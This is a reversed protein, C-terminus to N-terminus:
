ADGSRAKASARLLVSGVVLLIGGFLFSTAWVRGRFIDHDFLRVVAITLGGVVVLSVLLAIIAVVAIRVAKAAPRVSHDRILAVLWELKQTILSAWDGSVTPDRPTSM